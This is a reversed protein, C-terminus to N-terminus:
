YQQLYIKIPEKVTFVESSQAGPTVNIVRQSSNTNSFNFNTNETGSINLGSGYADRAGKILM